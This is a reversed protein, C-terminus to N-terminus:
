PQPRILISFFIHSVLERSTWLSRSVLQRFLVFVASLVNSEATKQLGGGAIGPLKTLAKASLLFYLSGNSYQSHPRAVAFESLLSLDNMIFSM